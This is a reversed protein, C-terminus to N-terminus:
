NKVGTAKFALVIDNISCSEKSSTGSPDTFYVKSERGNYYSFVVAHQPNGTLILICKNTLKDWSISTVIDGKLFQSLVAQTYLSNVGWYNGTSNYRYYGRECLWSDIVSYSPAGYLSYIAKVLCSNIRSNYDSPNCEYGAKLRPFNIEQIESLKKTIENKFAIINIFYNFLEDSMNVQSSSTWKTTCIGNEDFTFDMRKQAQNFTAKDSESLNDWDRGFDFDSKSLSLYNDFESTDFETINDNSSCAIFFGSMAVSVLVAILLFRFKLNKHRRYSIRKAEEKAQLTMFKVTKM